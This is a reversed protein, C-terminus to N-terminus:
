IQTFYFLLAVQGREWDWLYVEGVLSGALFPICHWGDLYFEEWHLIVRGMGGWGM